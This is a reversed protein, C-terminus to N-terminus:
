SRTIIHPFTESSCSLLLGFFTGRPLSLLCCAKAWGAGQLMRKELGQKSLPSALHPWVPSDWNHSCVCSISYAVPGTCSHQEGQRGAPLGLWHPDRQTSLAWWGLRRKNRQHLRNLMLSVFRRTGAGFQCHLYLNWIRRRWTPKRCVWKYWCVSLFHEYEEGKTSKAWHVDKSGLCM